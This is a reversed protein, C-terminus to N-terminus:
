VRWCGGLSYKESDKIKELKTKTQKAESKLVWESASNLCIDASTTEDLAYAYNFVSLSFLLTFIKM